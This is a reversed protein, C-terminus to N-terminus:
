YWVDAYIEGRQGATWKVTQGDRMGEQPKKVLQDGEELSYVVVRVHGDKRYVKEGNEYYFDFPIEELYYEESFWGMRKQLRYVVTEGKANYAISSEPLYNALSWLNGDVDTRYYFTTVGILNKEYIKFSAATCGALALCVLISIIMIIRKKKM